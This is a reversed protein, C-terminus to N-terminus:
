PKPAPAIVRGAMRGEHVPLAFPKWASPRDDSKLPIIVGRNKCSKLQLVNAVLGTGDPLFDLASVVTGAGATFSASKPRGTEHLVTADGGCRKNDSFLMKGPMLSYHGDTSPLGPLLTKPAPALKRTKFDFVVRDTETLTVMHQDDTGQTYMQIAVETPSVRQRLPGPVFGKDLAIETVADTKTDVLVLTYVDLDNTYDHVVVLVSTGDPTVYPRELEWRGDRRYPAVHAEDGRTLKLARKEDVSAVLKGDDSAAPQQAIQAALRSLAGGRLRYLEDDVILMTDGNPLVSVIELRTPPTAFFPVPKAKGGLPVALNDDPVLFLGGSQLLAAAAPTLQPRARAHATAALGLVLFL